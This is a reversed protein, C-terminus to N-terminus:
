HPPRLRQGGAVHAPVPPLPHHPARGRPGARLHRGAVPGGAGPGPRHHGPPGARGDSLAGLVYLSEEMQLPPRVDDVVTWRDVEGRTVSVIAEVVSAEPGQLLVLRVQRDVTVSDGRDAARVVEKPPDYLGVYAFRVDDDPVVTRGSGLVVSRAVSLEDADLPALPHRTLTSM